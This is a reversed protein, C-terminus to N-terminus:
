FRLQTDTGEQEGCTIMRRRCTQAWALKGILTVELSPHLYICGWLQHVSIGVYLFENPCQGRHM